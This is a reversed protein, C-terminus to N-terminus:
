PQSEPQRGAAARARPVVLAVHDPGERHYAGNFSGVSGGFQSTLRGGFKCPGPPDRRDELASTALGSPASWRQSQVCAGHPLLTGIMVGNSSGVALVLPRM